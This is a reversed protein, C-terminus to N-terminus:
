ELIAAARLAAAPRGMGRACLSFEVNERVTLSRFLRAAQFTRAVGANVAKTPGYRRMTRSDVEISGVTPCQFGTLVNVLTTKGAGNPGIVGLLSGRRLEITVGSLAKVLVVLIVPRLLPLTVRWLRDRVHVGITRM